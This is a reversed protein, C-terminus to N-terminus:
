NFLNKFIYYLVDVVIANGAQRYLQTDSNFEKAKLFDEDSIGMLRFCEKPTLKRIRLGNEEIIRKHGGADRARLTGALNDKIGVLGVDSREEMIKSELLYNDKSVTTITNAIRNENPEVRQETNANDKLSGRFSPNEVDRRRTAFIMPPELVKEEDMIMPERGGGGLTSITPAIYNKDYVRFRNSNKRTPTDYRAIQNIKDTDSEIKYDRELLQKILMDSREKNIYYNEEINDELIDKIRKELKFGEPFKYDKEPNLISVCFVRERNQPIGFDKANLVQWYNTYGLGELIELWSEFGKINKKFTLAKVNEMLLYKPKKAEIIKECEWLLSSRTNSGKKFGREKGASSLDQCNHVITNFVTFSHNRFVELDYVNEEGAEEIDLVKFWLNDNDTLDETNNLEITYLYGDKLLTEKKSIIFPKRYVKAICQALGYLYKLNKSSKKVEKSDLFYGNLFETLHKEPLRMIDGTITKDKGRGFSKVYRELQEEAILIRYCDGVDKEEYYFTKEIKEKFTEINDKHVYIVLGENDSYNGNSLFAGLIFYFEKRRMIRNLEKNYSQPLKKEKNIAFGLYYEETLDKLEIWNPKEGEKKAYFRHNATAKIEDVANTHLKFVKKKGNDYKNVVRKFTNDHTLVKDDIEVETIKKYGEETLVLADETFCPFSYTFLDIDPLSEPDIKSIDGYNKSILSARYLNDLRKGKLSDSKNKFSKADLPINISKLYERKKEDTVNDKLKYDKLGDHITAYSLVAHEDIDSTGVLEIPIGLRELAMRQTGIGSFSEFVRIKDM